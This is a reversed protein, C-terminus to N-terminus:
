RLSYKTWFSQDRMMTEYDMSAGGSDGRGGGRFGGRGGYGGMHGEQQSEGANGSKFEFANIKCGISITKKEEPALHLLALPVRYEIDMADAPDWSFSLNASGPMTLGQEEPENDAFGFVKMSILSLTMATRMAKAAAKKEEPTEQSNDSESGQRRFNMTANEASADRKLPFGIGKSEKKKGKVDIYVQMGERMIKMLMRSDTIAFALYLYQGDNDVAYRIATGPDTSFAAAPWEGIKGDFVHAITSDAPARLISKQGPVSFSLFAFCILCVIMIKM